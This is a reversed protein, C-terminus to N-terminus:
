NIIISSQSGLELKIEHVKVRDNKRNVYVCVDTEIYEPLENPVTYTLWGISTHNPSVVQKVVLCVCKGETTKYRFALNLRADDITEFGTSLTLERGCFKGLDIKQSLIAWNNDLEGCALIHDSTNYSSGKSMQMKWKSQSVVEQLKTDTLYQNMNPNHCFFYEIHKKQMLLRFYAQYDKKLTDLKEQLNSEGDVIMNVARFLYHYYEDTFHLSDIGWLHQTDGTIDELGDIVHINTFLSEFYEYCAKLKKAVLFVSVDNLSYMSKIKDNLHVATPLNKILIIKAEKYHQKLFDAYLRLYEFISQLEMEFSETFVVGQLELIKERNELVEAIHSTRTLLFEYGDPMTGKVMQFRLECLDVILYDSRSASIDEKVTKNFDYLINRKAFGSRQPFCELSNLSIIRRSINKEAISVPSVSQIFKNIIYKESSENIRFIDRCICCGLIDITTM